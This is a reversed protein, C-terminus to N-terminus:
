GHLRNILRARGQAVGLAEDHCATAQAVDVTLALLEVLTVSQRCRFHGNKEEFGKQKACCYGDATQRLGGDKRPDVHRHCFWCQVKLRELGSILCKVAALDAAGLNNGDAGARAAAVAAKGDKLRRYAKRGSNGRVRAQIRKAATEDTLIPKGDIDRPVKRVRIRRRSYIRKGETQSRQRQSLM